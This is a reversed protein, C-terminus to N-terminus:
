HRPLIHPPIGSERKAGAHRYRSLKLNKKNMYCFIIVSHSLLWDPRLPIYWRAWQDHTFKRVEFRISCYISYQWGISLSNWIKMYSQIEYNRHVGPTRGDTITNSYDSSFVWQEPAFMPFARHGRLIYVKMDAQISRERESNPWDNQKALASQDTTLRVPFRGLCSRRKRYFITGDVSVWVAM